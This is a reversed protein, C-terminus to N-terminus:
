AVTEPWFKNVEVIVDAPLGVRQCFFELLALTSRDVLHLNDYLIVLPERKAANLLFCTESDFLQYRATSSDSPCSSMSLELRDRLEPIIDAHGAARQKM